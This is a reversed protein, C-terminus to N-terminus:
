MYWTKHKMVQWKDWIVVYLTTTTFTNSETVTTKHIQFCVLLAKQPQLKQTSIKNTCTEDDSTVTDRIKSTIDTSFSEDRTECCNSVLKVCKKWRTTTIWWLNAEMFTCFLLASYRYLTAYSYYSHIVILFFFPYFFSIGLVHHCYDESFLLM